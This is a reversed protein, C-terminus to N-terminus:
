RRAEGLDAFEGNYTIEATHAGVEVHSSLESVISRVEKSLLKPSYFLYNTSSHDAVVQQRYSLVKM